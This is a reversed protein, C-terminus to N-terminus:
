AAAREAAYARGLRTVQEFLWNQMDRSCDEHGHKLHCWEEILTAALTLDGLNIARRAILITRTRRNAIGLVGEGLSEVTSIPFEDVPYDISRCFKVAQVIANAEWAALTVEHASPVTAHKALVNMASPNLPVSTDRAARSAAEIFAASPTVSPWDLDVHHEAFDRPSTIWSFIFEPDQHTAIARAVAIIVDFHNRVTRDETLALNRTINVTFRSPRQFVQGVNIRRYFVASSTTGHFEVGDGVAFPAGSLIYDDIRRFSEAFEDDRVIITTLNEGPPILAAAATGGEDKSNCWLERMAQWIKWHKGLHDTFGLEVGNMCVVRSVQGRITVDKLTFRLEELGRWITIDGGNRLIIAIAYKLGTGFFGIPNESEKVSVGITSICRTDILGPNQFTTVANGAM